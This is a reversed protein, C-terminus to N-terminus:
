AHSRFSRSSSRNAKDFSAKFVLECTDSPVCERLALYVDELMAWSEALCPGAIITIKDKLLMISMMSRPIGNVLCNKRCMIKEKSKVRNEFM